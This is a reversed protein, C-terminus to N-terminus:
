NEPLKHCEEQVKTNGGDYKCEPVDVYDKLVTCVIFQQFYISEDWLM